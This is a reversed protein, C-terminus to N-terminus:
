LIILFIFKKLTKTIKLFLYTLSFLLIIKIIPLIKLKIILFFLHLFTREFLLLTRFVIKIQHFAIKLIIVIVNILFSFYIRWVLYSFNSYFFLLCLLNLFSYFLFLFYIVKISSKIVTTFIIDRLLWLILNLLLM